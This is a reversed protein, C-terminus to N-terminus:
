ILEGVGIRSGEALWVLDLVSLNRGKGSCEGDTGLKFNACVM